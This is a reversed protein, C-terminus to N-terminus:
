IRVTLIEATFTALGLIGPDTDLPKGIPSFDYIIKKTAIVSLSHFMMM